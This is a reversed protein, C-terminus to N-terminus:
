IRRAGLQIVRAKVAGLYMLVGGLAHRPEVRITSNSRVTVSLHLLDDVGEQALVPKAPILSRGLLGKTCMEWQPLKVGKTMIDALQATTAVKKLIM